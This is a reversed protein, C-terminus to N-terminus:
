TRLIGRGRRESEVAPSATGTWMHRDPKGGIALTDLIMGNVVSPVDLQSSGGAAGDASVFTGLPVTQDAGTFTTAGAVVGVTQAAPIHVTVVVNHNGTSPALM